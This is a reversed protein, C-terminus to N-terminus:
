RGAVELVIRGTRPNAAYTDAALPEALAIEIEGVHNQAVQTASSAALRGPDVANDILAITGRSEAAGLRVTIVDGLSLPAEHLWFVRARVRRTARAPSAAACLMDGRDVFVEDDLRIGISQGATAARPVRSADPAPWA